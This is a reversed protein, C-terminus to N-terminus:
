WPGRLPWARTLLLTPLLAPRCHQTPPHGKGGQLPVRGLAFRGSAGADTQPSCSSRARSCSHDHGRDPQCTLGPSGQGPIVARGLVPVPCSTSPPLVGELLSGLGGRWVVRWACPAPSESPDCRASTIGLPQVLSGYWTTVRPVALPQVTLIGQPSSGTTVGPQVGRPRLSRTLTGGPPYQHDGQYARGPTAGCPMGPSASPLRATHVSRPSVVCPRVSSYGVTIFEAPARALSPRLAQARSAVCPCM